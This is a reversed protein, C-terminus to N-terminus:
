QKLGGVVPAEIGEILHAVKRYAESQKLAVVAPDDPSFNALVARVQDALAKLESSPEPLTQLEPTHELLFEVMSKMGDCSELGERLLRVYGSADGVDLADFAQVCYFGFRHLPPLMFVGDETLATDAYCLPLFQREMGAFARALVLGQTEDKWDFGRVAALLLARRWCLTQLEEQPAAEALQLLGGLPALRGVLTDMEEISMPKGFLPFAIGCKLAHAIASIPVDELKLKALRNELETTDSTNLLAVGDGLVCIGELSILATYSHRRFGERGVEEERYRPTLAAAATNIFAAKRKKAMDESPTPQIIQEWFRAMLTETDLDAMRHLRLLMNVCGEVQQGEDLEAGNICEFTSFADAYRELELYGEVQMILLRREWFPAAFELNGRFLEDQNFNSNRYNELGKRYMDAWKTAGEPDRKDWSRAYACYAVDVWTYISDPYLEVAKDAWELLEPLKRLQAVSVADRYVRAGFIGWTKWDKHLVDLARRAYDASEEDMTKTADVCECLTQLNEPDQELKKKLLEINRDHKAKMAAKSVFAYGDHYVLAELRVIQQNLGEPYVWHEHICGEYRIGVGNRMIRMASFDNYNGDNTVNPTKFNRIMYSALHYQKQPLQLFEVLKEVNPDFWEDADLTMFWEGTSRDLVANRAAAFDSIWPFDILIDAYEEAVVRSGDDSGTDAMVVECPIANRLPHLSKLCRELCRIENKFIIGISLLPKSM